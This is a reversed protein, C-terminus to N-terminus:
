TSGDLWRRVVMGVYYGVQPVVANGLAEAQRALTRRDVGAPLGDDVGSVGCQPVRRSRGSRMRAPEVNWAEGRVDACPEGGHVGSGAQRGLGPAHALVFMRTREHPAGLKGAQVVNWEVDYGLAALDSVVRCLGKQLLQPVNEVVVVKPRKAEVINAFHLWLGTRTDSMGHGAGQMSAGQCPFGGALVDVDPLRDRGLVVEQAVDRIDSFRLADPWHKALVRRCWPDVEVQYLVPGLGAWQLGLDLGGIGSFLSGITM